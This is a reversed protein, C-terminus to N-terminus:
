GGHYPEYELNVELLLFDALAGENLDKSLHPLVENEGLVLHLECPPVLQRILIKPNPNAIACPDVVSLTKLSNPDTIYGNINRRKMMQEEISELSRRLCTCM